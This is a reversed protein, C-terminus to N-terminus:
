AIKRFIYLSIWIILDILGSGSTKTECSLSWQYSNVNGDKRKQSLKYDENSIHVNCIKKYGDKIVIAVDNLINKKDVKITILMKYIDNLYYTYKLISFDFEDIFEM